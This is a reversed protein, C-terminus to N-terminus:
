LKTISEILLLRQGKGDKPAFPVVPTALLVV